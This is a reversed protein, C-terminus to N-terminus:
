TFLILVAPATSTEVAVLGQVSPVTVLLVAGTEPSRRAVTGAVAALEQIEISTVCATLVQTSVGDCFKPKITVAEADAGAVDTNRSLLSFM